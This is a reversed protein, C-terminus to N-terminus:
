VGQELKLSLLEYIIKAAQARTANDGPAFENLSVGNIIGSKQMVFISEKAWNSM